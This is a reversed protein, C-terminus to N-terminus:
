YWTKGTQFVKSSSVRFLYLTSFSHVQSIEHVEDANLEVSVLLQGSVGFLEFLVPAGSVNKVSKVGSPYTFWQLLHDQLVLSTMGLALGVWISDVLHCDNADAISIYYTGSTLGGATDALSGNSWQYNYPPTGGNVMVQASGNPCGHCSAGIASVTTVLQAPWIISFSDIVECNMIDNILVSYTGLPLNNIMDTTDGTSWQVSHPAVGGVPSVMASGSSDGFCPPQQLVLQPDIVPCVDIKATWVDFNGMNTSVDGDSSVSCGGLVFGGNIDELLCSFYDDLTGGLNVEYLIQGFPDITMFWYDVMGNNGSIDGDANQAFALLSYNGAANEIVQATTNWGSSGYANAWVVQGQANLKVMWIDVSGHFGSIISDNSRTEGSLLYHGDSTLISSFCNESNTGGLSKEWVLGGVSDIKIVWMDAISDAGTHNSIDGDASASEGSIIWGNDIAPTVSWAKDIGSGGYTEEWLVNGQADFEVVWFDDQGQNSQVDGDNSSTYGAVILGGSPTELLKNAQEDGTGGLSKQWTINRSTDLKVVWWDMGGQNQTM